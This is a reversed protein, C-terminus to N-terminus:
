PPPALASLNVLIVTIGVVVVVIGLLVGATAYGLRVNGKRGRWGATVGFAGLVIGAQPLVFLVLALGVASCVLATLALMAEPQQPRQPTDTSETSM